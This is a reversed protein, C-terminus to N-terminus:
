DTLIPFVDSIRFVVALDLYVGVAEFSVLVFSVTFRAAVTAPIMWM